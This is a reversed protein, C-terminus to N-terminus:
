PVPGRNGREPQRSDGRLRPDAWRFRRPSEEIAPWHTTVYGLFAGPDDVPGGLFRVVSFLLNPQRKAPPVTGLLTLVADDRSVAHALREYGPSVGHAERVAFDAYRRAVTV